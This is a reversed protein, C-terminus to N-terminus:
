EDYKEFLGCHCLGIYEPDRFEKCMCRTDENKVLRCICYGDNDDIKKRIVDIEEDTLNPNFRLMM